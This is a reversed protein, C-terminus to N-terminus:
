QKPPAMNPPEAHSSDARSLLDAWTLRMDRRGDHWVEIAILGVRHRLMQEVRALAEASNDAEISQHEVVESQGILLCTFTPM